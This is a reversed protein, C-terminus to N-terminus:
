IVKTLFEKMRWALNVKEKARIISACCQQWCILSQQMLSDSGGGTASQSKFGFIVM